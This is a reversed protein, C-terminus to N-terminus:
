LSVVSLIVTQTCITGRERSFNHSKELNEKKKKRERKGEFSSHLYELVNAANIEHFSLFHLLGYFKEEEKKRKM